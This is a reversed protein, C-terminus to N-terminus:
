YKKSKRNKFFAELIDFESGETDVSMYDIYNTSKLALLDVLSITPIKLISGHTRKEAHEDDQGYGSITSLDLEDTQIFDITEDSKTWVCKNVIRSTKRISVLQAIHNPLPEALLGKWAYESELLYTNSGAIGDAAGFEVFTGQRKFGSEYLAWVDQLNQSKTKDFNYLVAGVFKVAEPDDSSKAYNLFENLEYGFNQEM